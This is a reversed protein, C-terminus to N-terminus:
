DNPHAIIKHPSDYLWKQPAGYDRDRSVGPPPHTKMGCVPRYVPNIKLSISGFLPMYVPTERYILAASPDMTKEVVKKEM